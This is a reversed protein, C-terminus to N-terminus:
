QDALQTLVYREVSVAIVHAIGDYNDAIKGAEVENDIFGIELHLSDMSLYRIVTPTLPSDSFLAAKRPKIGAVTDINPLIDSEAFDRLSVTNAYAESGSARGNSANGHIEIVLSPSWSIVAGAIIRSSETRTIQDNHEFAVAWIGKTSLEASIKQALTKSLTYETKIEANPSTAGPTRETHAVLFAVRPWDQRSADKPVLAYSAGSVYSPNLLAEAGSTAVGTGIIDPQKAGIIRQDGSSYAFTLSRQIQIRVATSGGWFLSDNFDRYFELRNIQQALDTLESIGAIEKALSLEIETQDNRLTYRDVLVFALIILIPPWLAKMLEIRDKTEMKQVSKGVAKLMDRLRSLLLKVGARFLYWFDQGGKIFDKGRM